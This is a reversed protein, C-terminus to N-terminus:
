AVRGLSRQTDAAPRHTVRIGVAAIVAGVMNSVLDWGTNEYGGVNTTTVLTAIFEIIENAAGFGMGGAVCLTLVGFTPQLEGLPRVAARIAQWCVWTTVGFGYAHVIQDYKLRDPIIWWSYLVRIDGNIPWSDPVPVLGGAMHLAGWLSLAWLAGTSLRVRSHVFGVIGILILMVAIYILFETNGRSFAGGIAAIMYAITFILVYIVGGSLLSPKSANAM